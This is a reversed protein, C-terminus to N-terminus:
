LAQSLRRPGCTKPNPSCYLKPTLYSAHRLAGLRSCGLTSAALPSPLLQASRPRPHFRGRHLSPPPRLAPFSHFDSSPYSSELAPLPPWCGDARTGKPARGLSVRVRPETLNTWM